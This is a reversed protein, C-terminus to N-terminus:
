PFHRWDLTSQSWCGLPPNYKQHANVWQPQTVCIHMLLVYWWQKLYHSTAQYAGLWWRFWHQFITLQVRLFLSWHFKLQYQYMKMWSFANSFTTQFIAGIKDRGWHTLVDTAPLHTLLIQLMFKLYMIYFILRTSVTFTSLSAHWLVESILLWCQNPYYCAAMLCCAMVQVLTLGSRYQRIADGPWLSNIWQPETMGYWEVWRWRSLSTYPCFM